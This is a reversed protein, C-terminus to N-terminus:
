EGYTAHFFKTLKEEKYTIEFKLIEGYDLDVMKNFKGNEIGNLLQLSYMKKVDSSNIKRIEREWFDQKLVYWILHPRYKYVLKQYLKGNMYLKPIEDLENSSTSIAIYLDTSPNWQAGNPGGGNQSFVNDISDNTLITISKEKLWTNIVLSDKETSYKDDLKFFCYANLKQEIGKESNLISKTITSNGKKNGQCSILVWITLFTVLTLRM